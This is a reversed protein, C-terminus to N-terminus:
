YQFISIKKFLILKDILEVCFQIFNFVTKKKFILFTYKSQNWYNM